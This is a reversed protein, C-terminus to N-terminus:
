RDERSQSLLEAEELEQKREKRMEPDECKGRCSSLKRKRSM